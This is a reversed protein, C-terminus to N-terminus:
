KSKINTMIIGKCISQRIILSIQIKIKNINLLSLYDSSEHLIEDYKVSADNYNEFQYIVSTIIQKETKSNETKKYNILYNTTKLNVM